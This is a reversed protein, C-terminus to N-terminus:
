VKQLHLLSVGTGDREIIKITYATDVANVPITLTDDILAGTPIKSTLMEFTPSSSTVPANYEDFAPYYVNSFVGTVVFNDSTAAVKWTAKIAFDNEQFFAPEATNIAM